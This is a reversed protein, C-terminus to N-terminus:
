KHHFSELITEHPQVMKITQDNQLDLKSKLAVKSHYVARCFFNNKGMKASFSDHDLGAMSKVVRFCDLVLYKLGLV